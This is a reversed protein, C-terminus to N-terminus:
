ARSRLEFRALVSYRPGVRSLDSRFLVLEQVPVDLQLRTEAILRDLEEALSALEARPRDDRVRALTLHPSFPRDQRAFGHQELTREVLGHLQQFSEYGADRTLGAWVVRRITGRPPFTGLSSIELVFPSISGVASAARAVDAIRSAPVQGLFRVTLHVSEPAVIRLAARHGSLRRQVGALRERVVDPLDVALFARVSEPAPENTPVFKLATGKRTRRRWLLIAM